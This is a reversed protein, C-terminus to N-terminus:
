EQAPVPTAFPQIPVNTRNWSGALPAPLVIATSLTASTAGTYTRTLSGAALPTANWDTFWPCGPCHVRYAALDVAGGTTVNTSSGTLWRAVGSSDYVYAGIFDLVSGPSLNWSEIALGWGSEGPNRWVQTRNPSAPAFPAADMLELGTRGDDFDWAYVLSDSDIQAAWARGVVTSVPTLGNPAAGNSVRTIVARGLNDEHSGTVLYWTPTRDTLATYWASGYVNGFIYHTLGNGGRGPTSYIGNRVAIPAVQAPCANSVQCAGGGGVTTQLVPTPSLSSSGAAATGFYDLALPAGCTADPELAIPVNVVAQQATALAPVVLAASELRLGSDGSPLASPEFLCIASQAPAANTDGCAANLPDNGSVNSIGITSSSGADPSATRYQYSVQGTREYAIAQFEFDGVANGGQVYQQMRSWQFVHCGQPQSFDSEATRPCSAFYRYRLGAGTQTGVVLDAHQPRLHPGVAGSSYGGVCDNSFDGGTDASSFSVYGNTSMVAQTYTSGYLEFGTGGLAITQTTRADDLPGFGNLPQGNTGLPVSTPLATVANAGAAIDVFSYSCVGDDSSAGRYGFDNPGISAGGGAGAGPLFLARAGAPLAAGGNNRLTVPVNWREGPEIAADNDGCVQQPTGATANLTPAVVDLARSAFGGCEAANSVNVSVQTSVSRPYTVTIANATSRRDEVGDGDSDWSYTFPGTAGTANATFTVNSGATPSNAFAPSDLTVSITCAARGDLTSAGTNGNDLWDKLRRNASGLGEWAHALRGYWDPENNGCAAAGGSLVGVLRGEDNWIGSGSSGRETTGLDWDAVRLHTTGGPTDSDYATVTLPDNEFSIRKEDGDPHHIGTVGDPALDRRDWGSLYLNAAGPAAANFRLINFDSSIINNDVDPNSRALDVAGFLSVNLPGDGPQGSAVSGPARCTSNQFNFYVRASAAEIGCHGASLFLPGATPATSNVFQGSCGNGDRTASNDYAVVAASRIEQRWNDGQPCVVDVNCSGSKPAALSASLSKYGHHVTDLELKLFERKEAPVSLELVATDGALIPTWFEGGPPNDADTFPGQREGTMPNRIWLEAGHPLRFASFGLDLSVADPAHVQLRWLARGDPLTSWDGGRSKAGELSVADIAHGLAYRVPGPKLKAKAADEGLAKAVDIAPLTLRAKADLDPLAFQSSPEAAFAALPHLLLLTWLRSKM